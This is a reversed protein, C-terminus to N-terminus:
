STHFILHWPHSSIEAADKSTRIFITYEHNKLINQYCFNPIVFFSKLLALVNHRFGEIIIAPMAGPESNRAVLQLEKFNRPVWKMLASTISVGDGVLVSLKIRMACSMLISQFHGRKKANLLTLYILAIDHSTLQLLMSEGLQLLM